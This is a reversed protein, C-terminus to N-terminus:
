KSLGGAEDATCMVAIHLATAKDGIVRVQLKLESVLGATEQTCQTQTM